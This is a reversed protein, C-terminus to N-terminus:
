ERIMREKKLTRYARLSKVLGMVLFCLMLLFVILIFSLEIIPDHSAICLSIEFCLGALFLLFLLPMFVLIRRLHEMRSDLNSFLDFAMEKSNKRLFLWKKFTAVEEFGTEELFRRYKISEPHSPHHKMWELHYEYEGPTGEEFVFNFFSASVLNMGKAAMDNLWKEEKDYDWIFFLKRVKHRM